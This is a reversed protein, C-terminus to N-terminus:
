CSGKAIGLGGGFYFAGVPYELRRITRQIIELILPWRLHELILWDVSSYYYHIRGPFPAPKALAALYKAQKRRIVHM